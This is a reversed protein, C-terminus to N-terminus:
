IGGGDTITWSDGSIINTRATEGGGGLTYTSTGFDATVTSTLVQSDWGILTADYNATSIGVGLMFSILNNVKIMNWGSLDQDFASARLMSQMNIALTSNLTWLGINQNFNNALLFMNGFTTVSSVDWGTIDQNFATANRFTAQMNTINSTNSSWAIPQNFVTAGYFMDRITTVKSVDWGSLSVGGNNYSSALWFMGQMSIVESVNWGSLNENFNSHSYFMNVMSIGAGITTNITWGTISSLNWNDCNQFMSSFNICSSVDWSSLNDTTIGSAANFMGSMSTVNSVDWLDVNPISTISTCARFMATIGNGQLNSFDPIDTATITMNSCGYFNWIEFPIAGWQTIKDVRLDPLSGAFEVGGCADASVTVIYTGATAYINTRNVDLSSSITFDGGGDGFNITCNTYTGNSFPFSFSESVGITTIEMKFDNFIVNRGRFFMGKKKSM